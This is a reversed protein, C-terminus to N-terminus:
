KPGNSYAMVPKTDREDDDTGYVRHFHEPVNASHLFKKAIMAANIYKKLEKCENTLNELLEDPHHGHHWGKAFDGIPNVIKRKM